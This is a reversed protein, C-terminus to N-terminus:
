DERALNHYVLFERFANYVTEAEQADQPVQKGRVYFGESTIKLMEHNDGVMFTLSNPQQSPDNFTYFPGTHQLDYDDPIRSAALARKKKM